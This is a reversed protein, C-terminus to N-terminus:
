YEGQLDERNSSLGRQRQELITNKEQVIEMQTQQNEFDTLLKAMDKKLIEQEERMMNSLIVLDFM